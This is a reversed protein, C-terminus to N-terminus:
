TPLLKLLDDPHLQEILNKDKAGKVKKTCFPKVLKM